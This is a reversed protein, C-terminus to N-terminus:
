KGANARALKNVIRDIGALLEREATEIAERARSEFAPRIWPEAPQKSSGYELLNASALTSVANGGGSKGSKGPYIKRRVRLLVREGKGGFPPKGRTVALNKALLGTSYRKGEDNTNATVAQLNARRQADIPKAGKKLAALVPGGRKSVLEPPLARLTDLVGDLGTLKM